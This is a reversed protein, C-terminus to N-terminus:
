RSAFPDDEAAFRGHDDRLYDTRASSESTAAYVVMSKAALTQEIIDNLKESETPTSGIWGHRLLSTFESNNFRRTCNDWTVVRGGRKGKTAKSRLLSHWLRLPIYTGSAMGEETARSAHDNCLKLFFAGRGLRFGRVSNRESCKMGRLEANISKMREIEKPYSGDAHPRYFADGKSGRKMRKYQVLVFSRFAHNYYVLDVGLTEELPQRNCNIITLREQSNEMVAIGTQYRRAVSMGPMTAADHNIQPDERLGVDGLRSLFPAMEDVPAVAARLRKKRERSGGWTEVAVAVADQEFLKFDNPQRGRLRKIAAVTGRTHQIADAASAGHAAVANVLAAWSKAPLRDVGSIEFHVRSPFPKRLGKLLEDVDIDLPQLHSISITKQGTAVRRGPQVIGVYDVKDGDLSVLVLEPGSISVDTTDIVETFREDNAIAEQIRNSRKWSGSAYILGGRRTAM